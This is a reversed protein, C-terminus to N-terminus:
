KRVVSYDEDEWVGEFNKSLSELESKQESTLEQYLHPYLTKQLRRDMEDLLKRTLKVQGAVPRELFEIFGFDSKRKNAAIQTAKVAHHFEMLERPEIRDVKAFLENSIRHLRRNALKLLAWNRFFIIAFLPTFMTLGVFGSLKNIFGLLPPTKSLKRFADELPNLEETFPFQQTM